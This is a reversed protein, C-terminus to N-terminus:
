LSCGLVTISWRSPAICPSRESKSGLKLLLTIKSPTATVPVFADAADFNIHTFFPHWGPTAQMQIDLKLIRPSYTYLRSKWDLLCVNRHSSYHPVILSTTKHPALCRAGPVDERADAHTPGEGWVACQEELTLRYKVNCLCSQWTFAIASTPPNRPARSKSKCLKGASPGRESDGAPKFSLNPSISPLNCLPDRVSKSCRLPIRRRRCSYQRVPKWSSINGLPVTWPVLCSWLLNPSLADSICTQWYIM